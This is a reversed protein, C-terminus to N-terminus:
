KVTLTGKMGAAAHGPLTCLYPYKGKKLTAKLTAVKGAALSPTKKAVIKFDHTVGGKNTVKFTTVGNVISKKSLTIKFESPKGLTVAVTTAATSSSGGFAAVAAVLSLSAVLVVLAFGKPFTSM